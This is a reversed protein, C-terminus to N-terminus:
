CSAMGWASCGVVIDTPSRLSVTNGGDALVFAGRGLHKVLRSDASPSGDMRVELTEGPALQADRLPYGFIFQDHYGRLHLKLLYGDLDVPAASTNTISVTEPGRPQASMALKGQLPDSCQFLCPYMVSLRLDGQPDFLYGGDGTHFGDDTANEFVSTKQCWYLRGGENRGCGMHLRVRGGPALRTGAPFEFGPVRRRNYILWSDRFWWGGLDVETAGANRIEVWEGNVNERDNGDADWNVTMKLQAEQFPGAGCATPNWLNLGRAAAQEALRHYEANHANEVPNPLWLAHGQEMLIRGLDQWAGGIRVAVSRRLRHGTTSRPSQAALRVIGRSRRVLREVLATAALAHCAGRRRSAYKSYRTLEMTNIGTFRISREGRRGDGRIDARITDGDAVFTVKATWFHCLPRATGPLCPGRSAAAAGEAALLGTVAALLTALLALLSRPM